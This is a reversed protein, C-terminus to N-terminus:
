IDASILDCETVGSSKSGASLRHVKSCVCNAHSQMSKNSLHCAAACNADLQRPSHARKLSTMIDTIRESVDTVRKMAHNHKFINKIVGCFVCLGYVYFHLDICIFQYHILASFMYDLKFNLKM